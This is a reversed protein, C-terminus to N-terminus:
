VENVGDVPIQQFLPNQRDSVDPNLVGRVRLTPMYVGPKFGKIVFEGQDNTLVYKEASYSNGGSLIYADERQDSAKKEVLERIKIFGIWGRRVPKGTDEYFARGRITAGTKEEDRNGIGIGIGVGNGVGNGNGTVIRPPPPPEDDEVDKDQSLVVGACLFVILFLGPL